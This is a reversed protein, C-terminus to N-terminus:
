QAVNEVLEQVRRAVGNHFQANCIGADSPRQSAVEPPHLGRQPALLEADRRTAFANGYKERLEVVNDGRGLNAAKELPAAAAAATVLM